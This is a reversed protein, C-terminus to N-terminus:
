CVVFAVLRVPFVVVHNHSFSVKPPSHYHNYSCTYCDYQSMDEFYAEADNAKKSQEILHKHRINWQNCAEQEKELEKEFDSEKLSPIM